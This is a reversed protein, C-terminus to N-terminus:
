ILQNTYRVIGRKAKKVVPVQYLVSEVVDEAATNQSSRCYSHYVATGNLCFHQQMTDLSRWEPLQQLKQKINMRREKEIRRTKRQQSEEMMLQQVRKFLSSTGNKIYHRAAQSCKTPIKKFGALCVTKHIDAKRINESHVRNAWEELCTHVKEFSQKGEPENLFSVIIRAQDSITSHRASQPDLYLWREPLNPLKLDSLQKRIFEERQIFTQECHHIRKVLLRASMVGKLTQLKSVTLSLNFYGKFKFSTITSLENFNQQPLSQFSNALFQRLVLKSSFSKLDALKCICDPLLSKITCVLDKWRQIAEVMIDISEERCSCGDFQCSYTTGEEQAVQDAAATINIGGENVTAEGTHFPCVYSGRVRFSLYRSLYLKCVDADDLELDNVLDVGVAHLRELLARVRNRELSTEYHLWNRADDVTLACNGDMFECFRNAIHVQARSWRRHFALEMDSPLDRCGVRSCFESLQRRREALVTPLSFTTWSLPLLVHCATLTPNNVIPTMLLSQLQSSVMIDNAREPVRDCVNQLLNYTHELLSRRQLEKAEIATLLKTTSGHISSEHDVPQGTQVDRAEFFFVLEPYLTAATSVIGSKQLWWSPLQFSSWLMHASALRYQATVAHALKDALQEAIQRDLPFSDNGSNQMHSLSQKSAAQPQIVIAHQNNMHYDSSGAAERIQRCTSPNIINPGHQQKHHHHDYAATILSSSAESCTSNTKWRLHLCTSCCPSNMQDQTNEIVCNSMNEPSERSSTKKINNCTLIHAHQDTDVISSLPTPPPFLPMPIPTSTFDLEQNCACYSSRPCPVGAYPASFPAQHSPVVSLCCHETSNSFSSDDYKDSNAPRITAGRSENLFAECSQIAAKLLPCPKIITDLTPVHQKEKTKSDLKRIGFQKECHRHFYTSVSINRSALAQTIVNFRRTHQQFKKYERQRTRWHRTDIAQKLNELSGHHELAVQLVQHRLYFTATGSFNETLMHRYKTLIDPHLSYETTATGKAVVHEALCKHCLRLQWRRVGRNVCPTFCMSCKKWESFCLKRIAMMRYSTDLRLDPTPEQKLIQRNLLLDYIPEWVHESIGIWYLRRCTLSACGISEPSSVLLKFIEELVKDCFVCVCM